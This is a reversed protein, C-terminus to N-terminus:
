RADAAALAAKHEERMAEIEAAHERERERLQDQLLALTELVDQTILM